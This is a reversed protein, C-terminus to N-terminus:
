HMLHAWLTSGPSLLFMFPCPHPWEMANLDPTASEIVYFFTVYEVAVTQDSYIVLTRDNSSSYTM